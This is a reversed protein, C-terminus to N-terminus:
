KISPIDGALHKKEPNGEIFIEVNKLIQFSRIVKGLKNAM